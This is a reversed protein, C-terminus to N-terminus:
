GLAIDRQRLLQLKLTQYAVCLTSEAKLWQAHASPSRDFAVQDAIRTAEARGEASPRAQDSCLGFLAGHLATLASILETKDPNDALQRHARNYAVELEAVHRADFTLGSYRRALLYFREYHDAVLHENHKVPAWALAARVLHYSARLSHPFPIGFQENCLQIVLRLLTWWRRRYYAQWGMVELHAVRAPELTIWISKTHANMGHDDEGISVARESVSAAYRAVNSLALWM